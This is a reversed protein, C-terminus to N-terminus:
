VVQQLPEQQSGLVWHQSLPTHTSLHLGFPADQSQVAGGIDDDQGPHVISSGEQQEMSSPRSQWQSISLWYVVLALHATQPQPNIRSSLQTTNFGCTHPLEHSGKM